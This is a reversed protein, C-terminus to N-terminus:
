TDVCHALGADVPEQGTHMRILEGKLGNLSPSVIVMNGDQIASECENNPGEDCPFVNIDESNVYHDEALKVTICPWKMPLGTCEEMYLIEYMFDVFDIECHPDDLELGNVLHISDERVEYATVNQDPDDDYCCYESCGLLLLSAMILVLFSVFASFFKM